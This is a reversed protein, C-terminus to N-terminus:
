ENIIRCPYISPPKEGMLRKKRRALVMDRDEPHILNIFPIKSLEEESYGTVVETKSNPFKVIGDQIIFIADNANEVLLRYKEESERLAEESQKRDTIDLVTFTVGLSLDNPDIPTSSLLVDIVEGDKRQWRTEVTGTGRENIQAYKERGVYEFEEDTLYLMRASKDM